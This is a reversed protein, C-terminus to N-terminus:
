HRRDDRRKSPLTRGHVYSPILVSVRHRLPLHIDLRPHPTDAPVDVGDQFPKELRLALLRATKRRMRDLQGCRSDILQILNSMGAAAFLDHHFQRDLKSFVEISHERAWSKVLQDHTSEAASLRVKETNEALRTVVEIEIATRLFHAEVVQAVDIRRVETRSQPFTAVLGEESLKLLAERLPTQSIQYHESLEIRSLPADPQLELAVIRRRLDAYVQQPLPLRRDFHTPAASSTEADM